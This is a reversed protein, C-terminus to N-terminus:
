QKYPCKRKDNDHAALCGDEWEQKFGVMDCDDKSSGPPPNKCSGKGWDSDYDDYGTYWCPCRTENEEALVSGASGILPLFAFTLLVLMKSVTNM